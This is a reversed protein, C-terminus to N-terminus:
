IKQTSQDKKAVSGGLRKKNLAINIKKNDEFIRVQDKLKKNANKLYTKQIAIRDDEGYTSQYRGWSSQKGTQFGIQNVKLGYKGLVSDAGDLISNLEKLKVGELFVGQEYKESGYFPKKSSIPKTYKALREIAENVTKAKVFKGVGM